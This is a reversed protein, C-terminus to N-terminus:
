WAAKSRCPRGSARYSRVRRGLEAREREVIARLEEARIGLAIVAAYNVLQAGDEGIAGVGLEPQAPAGLKRVVVVDLPADLARAVEYAVPVGGRPLAVVVPREGQLHGLREALRRGATRRDVFTALRMRRQLEPIIM